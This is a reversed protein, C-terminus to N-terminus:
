NTIIIKKIFQTKNSVIIKLFYIGSSLSNRNITTNSETILEEKVKNGMIDYVSYYVNEFDIISSSINLTANLSFPNPYFSVSNEINNVSVSTSIDCTTSDNSICVNDIYYYATKDGLGSSGGVNLTDISLSDQYNGITIFKEGGNAIFTGSVLVWNNKDSIHTGNSTIQPSYQLPIVDVSSVATDSFYAGIEKIAYESSDSLSVHFSVWYKSGAVLSDNLQAQIYERYYLYGYYLIFGAYSSGEKANQVGFDNAPVTSGSPSSACPNFWDSTGATPQQWPPTRFIQNDISCNTTDEFSPNPVLNQGNVNVAMAFLMLVTLSINTLQKM